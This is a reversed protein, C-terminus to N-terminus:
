VYPMISSTFISLPYDLSNKSIEDEVETQLQKFTLEITKFTEKAGEWDSNALKNEVDLCLAHIKMVGSNGSSGKLRHFIHSAAQPDQDTLSARAEALLATTSTIFTKMFEKLIEIDNGFIDYLRNM